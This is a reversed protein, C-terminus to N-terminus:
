LYKVSGSQVGIQYITNLMTVLLNQQMMYVLTIGRRLCLLKSFLLMEFAYM